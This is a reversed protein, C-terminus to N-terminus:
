IIKFIHRQNSGFLINYALLVPGAFFLCGVEYVVAAGGLLVSM